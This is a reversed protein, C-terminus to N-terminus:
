DGDQPMLLNPALERPLTQGDLLAEIRCAWLVAEKAPDHVIWDCPFPVYPEMDRNCHFICKLDRPPRIGSELVAAVAGPVLIDPHVVLADPSPTAALLRKVAAHATEGVEAAGRKASDEPQAYVVRSLDPKIGRNKLALRFRAAWTGDIDKGPIDSLGGPEFALAAVEPRLNTAFAPRKSGARALRDAIEEWLTLDPAYTVYKLPGHSLLPVPVRMASIVDRPESSGVLFLAKFGTSHADMALREEAAPRMPNFLRLRADVGRRSLEDCLLHVLRVAYHSVPGFDNFLIGVRRATNAVAAEARRAREALEDARRSVVTGRGPVRELLGERKLTLLAQQARGKSVGFERAVEANPPLRAGSTWPERGLRGRWVSAIREWHRSPLPESQGSDKMSFLMARAEIRTLFNGHGFRFGGIVSLWLM